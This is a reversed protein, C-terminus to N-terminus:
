LHGGGSGPQTLKLLFSHLFKPGPPCLPLYNPPQSRPGPAHYRRYLQEVPGEQVAVPDLKLGLWHRQPAAALAPCNCHGAQLPKSRFFCNLERSFCALLVAPPPPSPIHSSCCPWPFWRSYFPGSDRVATATDGSHPVGHTCKPNGLILCVLRISYPSSPFYLGTRM